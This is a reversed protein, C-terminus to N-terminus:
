NDEAEKHLRWFIEYKGSALLVYLQDERSAM